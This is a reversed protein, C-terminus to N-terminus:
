TCTIKGTKSHRNFNFVKQLAYTCSVWRLFMSKGKQTDGLFSSLIIQINKNVRCSYVLPLVFISSKLLKHLIISFLHDEGVSSYGKVSVISMSLMLKRGYELLTPVIHSFRFKHSVSVLCYSMITFKDILRTLRM